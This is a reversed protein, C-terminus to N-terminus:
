WEGADAEFVPCIRGMEEGDVFPIGLVWDNGAIRVRGCNLRPLNMM